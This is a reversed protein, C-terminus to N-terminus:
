WNLTMFMTSRRRTDETACVQRWDTQAQYISLKKYRNEVLYAISADVRDLLPGNRPDSLGRKMETIMKDFRFVVALHNFVQIAPVRSDFDAVLRDVCEKQYELMKGRVGSPSIGHLLIDVHDEPEDDSAASDSDDHATARVVKDFKYRGEMLEPLRKTSNPGLQTQLVVLRDFCGRRQDPYYIVLSSDSQAEKSFVKLQEDVDIQTLLTAVFKLTRIRGLWGTIKAKVEGATDSAAHEEKLFKVLVALDKAFAVLAKFESEV